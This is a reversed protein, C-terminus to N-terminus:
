AELVMEAAPTAVVLLMVVQSFAVYALRLHGCVVSLYECVALNASGKRDWWLNYPMM